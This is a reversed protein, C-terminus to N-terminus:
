KRKARRNSVIIVIYAGLIALSMWVCIYVLLRVYDTGDEEGLPQAELTITLPSGSDSSRQLYLVASEQSKLVCAQVRCESLATATGELLLTNEGNQRLYVRIEAQDTEFASFYVAIHHAGDNKLETQIETEEAPLELVQTTNSENYVTQASVPIIFLGIVCLLIGLRRLM